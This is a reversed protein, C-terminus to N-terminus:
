PQGGPTLMTEIQDIRVGLSHFRRVYEPGADGLRRCRPLDATLERLCEGFESLDKALVGTRGPEVTMRAAPTDSTVVPRGCSQAELVTLWPFDRLDPLAFLDCAAYYAPLDQNPIEGVLRVRRELELETVRAALRERGPGDGVVVLAVDRPLLAMANVLELVMETKWPRGDEKPPTLRSVSLVVPVDRPLGLQRRAEEQSPMDRWPEIALPLVELKEEPVGVSRLDDRSKPRYAVVRDSRALSRRHAFRFLYRWPPPVSDANGCGASLLVYRRSHQWWGYLDPHKVTAGYVLWADPRFRRSLRRISLAETLLRRAPARGRMPDRVDLRSMIRLEHGREQLAKLLNRVYVLDGSFGPELYSARPAYFAIRM